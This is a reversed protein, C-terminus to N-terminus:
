GMSASATAPPRQLPVRLSVSTGDSPRSHIRLEGHILGARERMSTLGWAAPGVRQPDFGCGNDQVTIVVAGQEEAARVRVLTADAHRRVNNLAEQAVRLAEATAALSLSPLTADCALEVRIGFRSAFEDTTRQLLEPLTGQPDSSLRLARVAEQADELGADIADTLDRYLAAADPGLDTSAALRGAMLKAVWLDQALGDHLERALRAREELAAREVEAAAARQESVGAARLYTMATAAEAEIGILLILDFTLRLVDGGTLLGIQTGPFLAYRVESLAAIVLAVALYRGVGSRNAEPVQTCAASAILFLVAVALELPALFRPIGAASPHPVPLWAAAVLAVSLGLVGAGGVAAIGWTRRVRGFRTAAVCGFLLVVAAILHSATLAAVGLLDPPLGVAGAGDVIWASDLLNAVNGVALVVFACAQYLLLREHGARYRVASLTAVSVTALVTALDFLLELSPSIVPVAVRPMLVALITAITLGLWVVVPVGHPRFTLPQIARPRPM